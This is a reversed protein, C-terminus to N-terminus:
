RSRACDAGPVYQVVQPQVDDGSQAGAHRGRAGHHRGARVSVAPEQRACEAEGARVRRAGVHVALRARHGHTVVISNALYRLLLPTGTQRDFGIAQIALAYNQFQISETGFPPWPWLTNNIVGSYSKLSTMLMYVFPLLSATAGLVLVVYM